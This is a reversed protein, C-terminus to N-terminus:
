CLKVWTQSYHLKILSEFMTMIGRLTMLTQSYHLKILSEFQQMITRINAKNSLLTIRYVLFLHEQFFM